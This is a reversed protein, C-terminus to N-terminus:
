KSDGVIDRNVRPGFDVGVDLDAREAHDSGVHADAAARPQFVVDRQHAAHVSPWCLWM